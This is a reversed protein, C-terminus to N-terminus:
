FKNKKVAQTDPDITIRGANEEKNIESDDSPKKPNFNLITSTRYGSTVKV